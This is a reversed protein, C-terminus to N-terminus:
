SSKRIGLNRHARHLPAVSANCLYSFLYIIGDFRAIRYQGFTTVARASVITFVFVHSRITPAPASLCRRFRANYDSPFVRYRECSPIRSRRRRISFLGTIFNPKCSHFDFTNVGCYNRRFNSINHIIKIKKITTKYVIRRSQRAKPFTPYFFHKREM